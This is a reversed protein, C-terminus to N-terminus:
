FLFNFLSYLSKYYQYNLFVLFEILCVLILSYFCNKANIGKGKGNEQATHLIIKCKKLYYPRKGQKVLELEAKKRKQKEEDRV